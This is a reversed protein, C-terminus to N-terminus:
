RSTTQLGQSLIKGLEQMTPLQGNPTLQNIVGPLAKALQALLDQESMGSQKAVESVTKPGLATGVQHPEIPKNPGSGIWSDVKDDHGADTFKKLLDGLGGLGGLSGADAGGQPVLTPDPQKGAAASSSAGGGFGGGVMKGILLTGLAIMLPKSFSGGPLAKNLLDDLGGAMIKEKDKNSARRV